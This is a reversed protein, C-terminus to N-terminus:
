TNGGVGGPADAGPPQAPKARGGRRRPKPKAEPPVVAPPVSSFRPSDRPDAQTRFVREHEISLKLLSEAKAGSLGASRARALVDERILPTPGVIENAFEEVTWDRVPPKPTDAKEAPKGRRRDRKLMTPDLTTDVEWLAPSAARIVFPRMPPFSRVAADVVLAGPVEHPRLVLHTDAARSQAGAGSGVDTVAKDAQSGKSSHHVVVIATDLRKAIADLSNYVKTMTENANEEGGPPLFRYLADLVILGYHGPSVDKLRKDLDDISLRHGRVPWLDLREVDQTTLQWSQIITRLRSSLTPEHLEGDILLVHDAHTTRGLWPRGLVAALALSHVLWSKGVKPAAVINMTEGKRLLGDIVVPRLDPHQAILASAHIPAFKPLDVKLPGVALPPPAPPTSLSLPSGTPTSAQPVFTPPTNPQLTSV